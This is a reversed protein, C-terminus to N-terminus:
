YETRAALRQVMSKIKPCQKASTASHDTPTKKKQKDNDSKCNFCCRKAPVEKDPCKDFAHAGSGCHSCQQEESTCKSKTHGFQLCKYCQLFPSYESVRVRQHDVAVRQQELLKLRLAPAVEFVANFLADNRNNRLFRFKIAGEEAGTFIGPNQKTLLGTLEESKVAKSVGKIIILPRLRRAPEAKLELVSELKRLAEKRQDDTDFEVRIKNNSVRQLKAPAFCADRFSVGKRWADTVDKASKIEEAGSGVIIAPRTVPTKIKPPKSPATAAASAYSTPAPRQQLDGRLKGFEERITDIISGSDIDTVTKNPDPLQHQLREAVRKIAESLAVISKKNESTVSKGSTVAGIIKDGSSIIFSLIADADAGKGPLKIPTAPNQTGSSVPAPM